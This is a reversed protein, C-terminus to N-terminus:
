SKKLKIWGYEIQKEVSLGNYPLAYGKSRLYDITEIVLSYLNTLDHKAQRILFKEPDRNYSPLNENQWDQLRGVEIADEDTIDSLSKLELIRERVNTRNLCIHTVTVIESGFDMCKVGWYQAFFKAKNDLTNEM